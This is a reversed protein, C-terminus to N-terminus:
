TTKEPEEFHASEHADMTEQEDVPCYFDCWTCRMLKREKPESPPPNNPTTAM